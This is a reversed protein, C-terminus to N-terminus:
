YSGRVMIIALNTWNGQKLAMNSWRERESKSMAKVVRLHAEMSGGELRVKKMCSMVPLEAGDSLTTAPVM